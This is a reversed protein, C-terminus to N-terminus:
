VLSAVICQIVFDGNFSIETIIIELIQMPILYTDHKKTLLENWKISLCHECREHKPLVFHNLYVAPTFFM